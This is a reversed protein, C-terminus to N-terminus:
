VRGKVLAPRELRFRSIDHSTRGSAALSALIDGIIAAFKFGHGSCCSAIVMGPHAPHLGIVFDEDPTMTYRCGVAEIVEGTLGPLLATAYAHLRELASLDITRDDDYPDVNPGIRDIMVKVGTHNFIPFVSGLSTTGPFRHILLPLQGPKHADPNAVRFFALQEKLVSLQLEVGTDRLLPGIWSGAAVIVRAAQYRDGSGTAVSFGDGNPTVSTVRVGEIVSAGARRAADALARVCRDAALLSYDPQYLAITGDPFGFQPFRARLEAEDLAEYPVGTANYTARIGDLALADPLGADLGGTEVLLSEGTDAELERWAQFSARALAVYDAGDYALRIIRSPGHSSGQQHGIAYQELLTVSLGARAAAYAAACGIVGGGIVIVDPTAGPSDSM